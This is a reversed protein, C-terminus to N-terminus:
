KRNKQVIRIGITAVIIIVIIAIVAYFFNSKFFKGSGFLGSNDLSKEGAGYSGDAIAESVAQGLSNFCDAAQEESDFKLYFECYRDVLDFFIWWERYSTIMQTGASPYATTLISYALKGSANNVCRVLVKKGRQEVSKLLPKLGTIQSETLM